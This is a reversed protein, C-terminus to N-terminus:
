CNKEALYSIDDLSFWGNSAGYYYINGNVGVDVRSYAGDNATVYMTRAAPCAFVGTPIKAISGGATMTGGRILGKLQVVGAGDVTYQATSYQAGYNVWSAQLTLNSWTTAPTTTIPLYTLNLSLNSTSGAGKAVISPVDNKVGLYSYSPTRSSVHLYQPPAYSTNNPVTFIITNDTMVGSKVLGQVTIRGSSDKAYSAPAYGSDYNVWSNQLTPNSRTYPASAPLFRIPDLSTWSAQSTNAVIDGSTRVDIRGLAGPAMSTGFALTGGGPAYDSPLTAIIEGAVPTTSNKLLGKLLVLGAKTKTYAATNYGDNFNTWGGRLTLPAWLPIVISGNGYGSTGLANSARVRAEVTDTHTGSTVTYSRTNSGMETTTGNNQWAGGNIRYSLDYSTAGAVRPWSFTVNHGDSVSASVVPVAPIATPVSEAAIASATSDLRTVRISGTASIDRGAINKRATLSVSVTPLSQLASNRTSDNTISPDDVTTSATAADASAFYKVKFDSANVGELLRMDNTRCFPMTTPNYGVSCSPQQWPSASGCRLSGSNYDSRMLVRRWLVNHADVFYVINMSMPTNKIYNAENDCAYPANALYVLRTTSAMPNGNTVLGNLILSAPSGGAKQINTFNVTSGNTMDTSYGQKTTAVSVNNVALFTTSLKVDDEIHNLADQVDYTLSTSGRSSLVEGTLNVILAIFAGILLIVIPAIVVMEILTFGRSTRKM